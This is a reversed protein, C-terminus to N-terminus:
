YFIHNSKTPGLFEPREDAFSITHPDVCSPFQARRQAVCVAYIILADAPRPISNAIFLTLLAFVVLHCDYRQM